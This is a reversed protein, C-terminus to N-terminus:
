IYSTEHLVMSACKNASTTEMCVALPTKLRLSDYGEDEQSQHINSNYTPSGDPTSDNPTSCVRLLSTTEEKDDTGIAIGEDLPSPVNCPINVSDNLPIPAFTVSKRTLHHTAIPSKVAEEEETDQFPTFPIPSSSSSLMLGASLSPIYPTTEQEPTHLEVSNLETDGDSEPEEQRARQLKKYNKRICHSRRSLYRKTCTLIITVLAMPVAIGACIYTILEWNQEHERYSCDVPDTMSLLLITIICWQDDECTFVSDDKCTFIYIFYINYM